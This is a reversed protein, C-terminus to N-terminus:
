DGDQCRLTEGISDANAAESAPRVTPGPFGQVEREFILLCRPHAYYSKRGAQRTDTFVLEMEVGGQTSEGCVACRNGSATGGLLQDPFRNPLEGAQM